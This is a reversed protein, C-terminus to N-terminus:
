RAPQSTQAITQPNTSSGHGVVYLFLEIRKAQSAALDRSPGIQTKGSPAQKLTSAQAGPPDFQNDGGCERGAELHIEAGFAVAALAAQFAAALTKVSANESGMWM